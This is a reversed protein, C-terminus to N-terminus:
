ASAGCYRDMEPYLIPVPFDLLFRDCERDSLKNHIAGYKTLNHSHQM